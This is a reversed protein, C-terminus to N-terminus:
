AGDSSLDSDSSSSEDESGSSSTEEESAAGNIKSGAGAVSKGEDESDSSSSSSSSSDYDVVLTRNKRKKVKAKAAIDHGNFSETGSKPDSNAGSEILPGAELGLAWLLIKPRPQKRIWSHYEQNDQDNEDVLDSILPSAVDNKFRKAYQEDQESQGSDEIVEVGDTQTLDKKLLEMCQVKLRGRAGSGRLGHMYRALAIDYNRPVDNESLAHKLIWTERNKNFKWSSPAIYHRNLYDLAKNSKQVAPQKSKKGSKTKPRKSSTVVQVVEMNLDHAPSVGNAVLSEEKADAAFSVQKKLSQMPSRRHTDTDKQLANSADLGYGSNADTKAQTKQKKKPPELTSTDSAQFSIHANQSGTSLEANSVRQGPNENAYKLKLGLRKWAPVSPQSM